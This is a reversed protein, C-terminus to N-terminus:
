LRQEKQYDHWRDNAIEIAKDGAIEMTEERALSAADERDNGNRIAEQYQEAYVEEVVEDFAEDLLDAYDHFGEGAKELRDAIKGFNQLETKTFADPHSPLPRRTTRPFNIVNTM